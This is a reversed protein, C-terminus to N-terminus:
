VRDDCQPCPSTDQAPVDCTCQLSISLTGLMHGGPVGCTCESNGRGTERCNGQGPSHDTCECHGPDHSQSTGMLYNIPVDLIKGFFTVAIDRLPENLSNKATHECHEWDHSQSTGMLFSIPVDLIKGFFTVATNGLPENLPNKVTEGTIHNHHEWGTFGLILWFPTSSTFWLPVNLIYGDHRGWHVM